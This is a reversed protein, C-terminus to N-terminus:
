FQRLGVGLECAAPGPEFGSAGLDRGARDAARDAGEGVDSRLDLLMDGLPEAERDLRDRRLDDRAVPVRHEKGRQGYDGARDLPEGDLNAM